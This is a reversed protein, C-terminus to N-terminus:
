SDGVIRSDDVVIKTTRRSYISYERVIYSMPKLVVTETGVKVKFTRLYIVGLIAPIFM